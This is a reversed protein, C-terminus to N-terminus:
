GRTRGWLNISALSPESRALAACLCAVGCIMLHLLLSAWIFIKGGIYFLECEGGFHKVRHSVRDFRWSCQSAFIECKFDQYEDFM